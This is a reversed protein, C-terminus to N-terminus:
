RATYVTAGLILLALGTLIWAAAALRLRLPTATTWDIGRRLWYPSMILWMGKFAMLYALTVMVLRWPSPEARCALLLPAPLLALLGGLARCALLEPMAAWTIPVLLVALPLILKRYPLMFELPAQVVLMGAWLLAAASLLRGLWLHRPLRRLAAGAGPTVGAWVGGLLFAAGLGWAWRKLELM